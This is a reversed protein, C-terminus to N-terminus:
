DAEDTVHFALPRPPHCVPCDCLVDCLPSPVEACCFACDCLEDCLPAEACFACDCFDSPAPITDRPEDYRLM